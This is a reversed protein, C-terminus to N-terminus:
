PSSLQTAPLSCLTRSTIHARGLNGLITSASMQLDDVFKCSALISIQHWYCATRRTRSSRPL